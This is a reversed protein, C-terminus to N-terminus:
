EDVVVKRDSQGAMRQQLFLLSPFYVSLLLPSFSRQESIDQTLDSLVAQYHPPSTLSDPNNPSDQIGPNSQSSM